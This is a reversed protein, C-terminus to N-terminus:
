VFALPTQTSIIEVKDGRKIEGANLPVLNQGFYIQKDAAKRYSALTNLPERQPDRAATSADVTTFICRSCPKALDFLVEGIKIQHWQDESYAPCNDVVINPRFQAMTVAQSPRQSLRQNLDDLSGQSILLVPYGDAYSLKNPYDKLPRNSQAGLFYLRCPQGLYQSFWLNAQESTQQGAIEDQWVQVTDYAPTFENLRLHLAPMNAATITIVDQEIWSSVKVLKSKTRGTIFKGETDTIVFHRDFILGHESVASSTLEIGATSKIPYTYLNSISPQTM